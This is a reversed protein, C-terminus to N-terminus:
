KAVPRSLLKILAPGIKQLPLLNDTAGVKYAAGPMGWVVSTKEDQALTMQGAMRMNLMAQAGDAGMGTLMVGLAKKSGLQAISNFLVEVSPKHRNVPESDDLCCYYDGARKEVLMHKDGPALYICGSTIKQQDKAEYVKMHSMADLRHAFSTAFMAPMHQTIVIPPMNAPLDCVVRKIAETGGTSAGIAIIYGPKFLYSTQNSQKPATAQQKNSAILRLMTEKSKAAHVVKQCVEQGFQTLKALETTAPKAIYDLAGLELATLSAPAGKETLTSIMVVPMPRLRMLNRLFAIGNMKPMEIDLTLVDPNLQKVKERAQYPDEAAGVVELEDHSRLIQTLLQRMLESDDVILVRFKRVVVM